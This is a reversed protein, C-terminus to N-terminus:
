NNKTAAIAEKLIEETAPDFKKQQASQKVM